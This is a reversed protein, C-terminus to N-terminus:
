GEGWGEKLIKHKLRRIKIKKREGQHITAESEVTKEAGRMRKRDKLEKVRQKRREWQDDDEDLGRTIAEREQQELTQRLVMEEKDEEEM